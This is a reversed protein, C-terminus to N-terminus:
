GKVSRYLFFFIQKVTKMCIGITAGRQGAVRPLVRSSNTKGGKRSFFFFFFRRAKLQSVTVD